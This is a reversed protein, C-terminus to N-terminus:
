KVQFVTNPTGAISSYKNVYYIQIQNPGSALQNGNPLVQPVKVNIQWVGVLFPALGTFQVVSSDLRQGGMYVILVRNPDTHEGSSAAGDAPMGDLLGQGLAYLTIVEGRNAPRVGGPCYTPDATTGAVGNCSAPNDGFQQAVVQRGGVVGAPFGPNTLLAPAVEGMNVQPAGTATALIQGTSAQMLVATVPASTNTDKPVQFNVQSSSVHLLPAPTGNILLQIDGLTTSLPVSPAHTTTMTGFSGAPSFPWATALSGPACCPQTYTAYTNADPLFNGSSTLWLPPFYFAVRNTGEAVLLNGSGDLALATPWMPYATVTSYAFVYDAVGTLSTMIFEPYRLIRGAQSTGLLEAVWIEGNAPNVVVGVPSRLSTTGTSYVISLSPPSGGHPGYSAAGDYVLIRNNGLDAIYLRGSTDTSIGRPSVMKDAAGLVRTSTFLDSQGFVGGAAQGNSFDGGQPKKFLLVRDHSMDSVLLHGELRIFALGYPLYMNSDSVSSDRASTFDNKGLVLNATQSFASPQDFPKPFRLVRGNGRDAVYLNGSADVALGAPLYLGANTPKNADNVPGNIGSSFVDPQGIVLDATDGPRVNRADRYGLVRNNYTDSIYLRAPNSTADVVVGGSDSVIPGSSGFLYHFGTSLYLERGEIWNPASHGFDRQGLVRTAAAQGHPWVVVRNNSSDAVFLESGSYAAQTPGSLGNAAASAVSTSFDVQGIASTAAPSSGGTSSSGIWDDLASFVTIRNYYADIVGLDGGIMVLGMPTGFQTANPVAPPQQGAPVVVLGLMKLASTGVPMPSSPFILVRGLADSVFIHGAADMTLGFPYQLGTLNTFVTTAVKSTLNQQGLVIDATAQAKGDSGKPFRLVRHNGTDAFWLNGSGDFALAQSVPSGLYMPSIGDASPTSSSHNASYASFDQLGTSDPQCVRGPQCPQGILVDPHMGDNAAAFPQPYRLIRNDGADVVYLNGQGDVALATPWHLGRNQSSSCCPAQPNTTVMDRQGVVVDAPAGNAFSAASRWGLVRNNLTDSVYLAPSASSKDLAVAGPSWLGKGDVVNPSAAYYTYQVSDLSLQGVIRPPNAYPGFATAVQPQAHLLAVPVPFIAFCL